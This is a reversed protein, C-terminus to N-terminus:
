ITEEDGKNKYPGKVSGDAEVKYWRVLTTYKMEHGRPLEGDFGTKAEFDRLMEHTDDYFEYHIWVPFDIDDWDTM